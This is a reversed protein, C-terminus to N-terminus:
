PPFFVKWHFVSGISFIGGQNDWCWPLPLIRWKPRVGSCWPLIWLAGSWLVRPEGLATHCLCRDGSTCGCLCVGPFLGGCDSWGCHSCPFGCVLFVTTTTIDLDCNGVGGYFFLSCSKAGSWGCTEQTLMFLDWIEVPKPEQAALHLYPDM